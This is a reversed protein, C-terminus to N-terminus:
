RTYGSAIQAQSTEILQSHERLEVEIIASIMARYVSEVVAPNAGHEQALTTVKSIVHEVRNPAKVEDTTRKFSAAQTVFTGREALLAVIECDIRDIHERVENLSRCKKATM